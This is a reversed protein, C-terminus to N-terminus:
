IHRQIAKIVESVTIDEMCHRERTCKTGFYCDCGSPPEIIEGRGFLEFEYRNFINNLLVLPKRLAIAIHMTMTVLSFVLDTNHIIAIFDKLNHVGPYYAGTNKVLRMNKEDEDPGGLLAPFFGLRQLHLILENYYREPWLRTLWRKGCGTNIGIIKKGKSLDRILQWKTILEKDVRLLYPEKNYDFHCIEFIEEPYSKKNEMSLQDFFGTLLKNDAAPTCAEIHGNKWTFGYRIESHLGATLACAEYDKDLNIIIDFERHTLELVARFDFVMIRDIEEGPLIDPHLTVWTIHCGPYKQRYRTVLPTTRIVDGIAGLKIILIRKSPKHYEDCPCIRGRLKNPMCPVTGKFHICDFKVDKLEM